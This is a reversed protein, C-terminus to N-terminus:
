TSVTRADNQNRSHKSKQTSYIWGSRRNLLVIDVFRDVSSGINTTNRCLPSIEHLRSGYLVASSNVGVNVGSAPSTAIDRRRESLWGYLLDGFLPWIAVNIVHIPTAARLLPVLTTLYKVLKSM